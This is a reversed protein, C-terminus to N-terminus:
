AVEGAAEPAVAGLSGRRHSDTGEGGERPGRHQPGGPTASESGGRRQRTSRRRIVSGHELSRAKYRAWPSPLDIVYDGREDCEWGAAKAFDAIDENIPYGYLRVAGLLEPVKYVDGILNPTIILGPEACLHIVMSNITAGGWHYWVAGIATQKGDKGGRGGMGHVAWYKYCADLLGVGWQKELDPYNHRLLWGYFIQANTAMVLKM